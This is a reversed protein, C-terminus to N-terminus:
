SGHCHRRRAHSDVFGPDMEAADRPRLVSWALVCTGPLETLTALRALPQRELRLDRELSESRATDTRSRRRARVGGNPGRACDEAAKGRRSKRPPEKAEDSAACGSDARM